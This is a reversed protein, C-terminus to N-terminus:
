ERSMGGADESRPPRPPRMGPTRFERNPRAANNSAPAGPPVAGPIIGANAAPAPTAQLSTFAPGSRPALEVKRTAGKVDVEIENKNVSVLKVAEGSAKRVTDGVALVQQHSDISVLAMPRAGSGLQGLYLITMDAQAAPVQTDAHVAEDGEVVPVEVPIKPANGIQALNRAIAEARKEMIAPMEMMGVPDPSKMPEPLAPAEFTPVGMGPIGTAFVVGVLSGLAVAGIQGFRTVSRARERTVDRFM